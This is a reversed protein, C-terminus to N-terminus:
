DTRERVNGNNGKIFLLRVSKLVIKAVRRCRQLVAQGCDSRSLTTPPRAPLFACSVCLHSSIVLAQWDILYALNDM